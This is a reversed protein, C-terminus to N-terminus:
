SRVFAIRWEIPQGTQLFISRDLMNVAAGRPVSLHKAILRDASVRSLTERARGLKLRSAIASQHIDLLASTEDTQPLLAVPISVLEYALVEDHDVRLRAARLVYQNPQLELLVQENHTPTGTTQWLITVRVM